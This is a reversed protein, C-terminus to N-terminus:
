HVQKTKLWEGLIFHMTEDQYGRADAFAFIEDWVEAKCAFVERGTGPHIPAAASLAPAGASATVNAAIATSMPTDKM